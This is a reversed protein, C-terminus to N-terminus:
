SQNAPMLNKRDLGSIIGIGEEPTRARDVEKDPITVAVKKPIVTKNKLM